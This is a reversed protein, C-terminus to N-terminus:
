NGSHKKKEKWLDLIFIIDFIVVFVTLICTSVVAVTPLFDNCFMWIWLGITLITIISLLWSLINDADETVNENIAELDEKEYSTWPNIFIFM